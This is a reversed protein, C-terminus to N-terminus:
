PVDSARPFAIPVTVSEGPGIALGDIGPNTEEEAPIEAFQKLLTDNRKHVETVCAPCVAKAKFQSIYLSADGNWEFGGFHEGCIPCPLWFNGNLDAIFWRIPKFLRMWFRIWRNM